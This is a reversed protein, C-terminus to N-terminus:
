VSFLEIYFVFDIKSLFNFLWFKNGMSVNKERLFIKVGIKM